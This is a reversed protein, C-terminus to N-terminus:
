RRCDHKAKARREAKQAARILKNDNRFSYGKYCCHDPLNMIGAHGSPGTSDGSPTYGTAGTPGDPPRPGPDGDKGTIEKNGMKWYVEVDIEERCYRSQWMDVHYKGVPEVYGICKREIDFLLTVVESPVSALVLEKSPTFNDIWFRYFWLGTYPIDKSRLLAIVREEEKDLFGRFHKCVERLHHYSRLDLFGFIRLQLEPLLEALFSRSKDANPLLFYRAAMHLGRFKRIREKRDRLSLEKRARLSM